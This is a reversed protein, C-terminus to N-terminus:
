TRRPSLIVIDRARSAPDVSLATLRGNEVHGSVTTRYPAHLKFDATWERPWAPLLQIRKGDVQVLMSEVTLM